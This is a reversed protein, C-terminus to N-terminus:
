MYDGRVIVVYYIFLYMVEWNAVYGEEDWHLAILWKKFTSGYITKNESLLWWLQKRFHFLIIDLINCLEKIYIICVYVCIHM